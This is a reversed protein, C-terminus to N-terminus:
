FDVAKDSIAGIIWDWKRFIIKLGYKYPNQLFLDAIRPQLFLVL